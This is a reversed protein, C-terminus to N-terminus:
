SAFSVVGGGALGYEAKFGNTDVAFETIAELWPTLYSTETTNGQRNTNVPVGDSTAAFAGGQGGGLALHTGGKAEPVTSVLGFPSPIARALLLPVEDVLKNPVGSSVKADETQVQANHSQVEVTQQVGGVQLVVDVRVTAGAALVINDVIASQFGPTSV